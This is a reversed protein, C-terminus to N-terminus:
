GGLLKNQAAILADLGSLVAEGLDDVYEKNACDEPDIPTACKMIGNRREPIQWEHEDNLQWSSFIVDPKPNKRDLNNYSYIWYGQEKIMPPYLWDSVNFDSVLTWKGDKCSYTVYKLLARIVSDMPDSKEDTIIGGYSWGAAPLLNQVKYWGVPYGFMKSLNSDLYGWMEGDQINYYANISQKGDTAPVGTDPLGDVCYCVSNDVVHRNHIFTVTTLRYFANENIESRPLELVDLIASADDDAEGNELEDMLRVLRSVADELSLEETPTKIMIDKAGTGDFISRLLLGVNKGTGKVAAYDALDGSQLGELIENLRTAIYRPLLDFRAKLEDATFSSEGFPTKQTPTTAVKTMSRKELDSNNIKEFM